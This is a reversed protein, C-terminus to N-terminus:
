ICTYQNMEIRNIFSLILEALYIFTCLWLIVFVFKYVPLPNLILWIIHAQNMQKIQWWNSKERFRNLEKKMKKRNRNSLLYVHRICIYHQATHIYTQAVLFFCITASWHFSSRRFDFIFFMTFIRRILEYTKKQVSLFSSLFYPIYRSLTQTLMNPWHSDLVFLLIHCHSWRLVGTVHKCVQWERTTTVTKAWNRHSTRKREIPTFALLFSSFFFTWHEMHKNQTNTSHTCLYSFLVRFRGSMSILYRVCFWCCCCCRNTRLRNCDM